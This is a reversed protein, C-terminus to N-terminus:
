RLQNKTQSLPAKGDTAQAKSLDAQIDKLRAISKARFESRPYRSIFERFSDAAESKRELRYLCESKWYLAPHAFETDYYSDLVSNFYVLGAHYDKFKRYLEGSKYDKQALKTRCLTLLREAEPVLKSNPFDELFRQFNAVAQRTYKQDLAPKPSLKYDCMAVMFQADDVWQSRQYLRILRNFEDAALIYAKQKFHCQALLFQGEDIFEAGPNNLTLIKFQIKAQEYDKNKFM